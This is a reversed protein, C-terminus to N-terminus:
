LCSEIREWKSRGKSRDKPTKFISFLMLWSHIRNPLNKFICFFMLWSDPIPIRLLITHLWNKETKFIRSRNKVGSEHNQTDKFIRCIPNVGSEHKKRDKFRCFVPTFAPTLSLPSFWTKFGTKEIDITRKWYGRWNYELFYFFKDYKEHFLISNL